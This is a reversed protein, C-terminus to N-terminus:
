NRYAFRWTAQLPQVDYETSSNYGRSSRQLLFIQGTKPESSDNPFRLSKLKKGPISVDYYHSFDPNGASATITAKSDWLITYDASNLTSYHSWPTEDTLIQAGTPNDGVTDGHWQYVIVRDQSNQFAGSPNGGIALRMSLYAPMVEQGIKEDNNDGTALSALEVQVDNNGFAGTAGLPIFNDYHKMPTMKKVSSAAISKVAQAQKRSLPPRGRRKPRSSKAFRTTAGQTTIRKPPM